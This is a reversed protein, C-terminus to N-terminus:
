KIHCALCLNSGYNNMVLEAHGAAYPSHCTGCGVRGGYFNIQPPLKAIDRYAGKYKRKAEAYSVGVPHTLGTTNSHEGRLIDVNSVTTDSGLIADHCSMCKISMEDLRVGISKNPVYAAKVVGGMHAGVGSISHMKSDLGSHCLVCFGSGGARTRIHSPGFGPKHASHCTVCTVMGRWDLPLESPVHMVPKIDVPHSLADQRDHCKGCLVTVDKKLIPNEAGAAPRTIHCDLCLGEFNHYDRVGPQDTASFAPVAAGTLLILLVVATFGGITLSCFRLWVKLQYDREHLGARKV